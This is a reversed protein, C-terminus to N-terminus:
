SHALQAQAIIRNCEEIQEHVMPRWTHSPTDLVAAATQLPLGLHQAIKIFALRRLEDPGYMRQGRQRVPSVLGRDDYHRLPSATLGLQAAACGIPILTVNDNSKM